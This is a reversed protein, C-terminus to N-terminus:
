PVREAAIAAPRTGSKLTKGKGDQREFLGDDNIKKSDKIKGISESGFNHEIPSRELGYAFRMKGVNWDLMEVEYDV